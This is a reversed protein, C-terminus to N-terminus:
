AIATRRQEHLEEFQESAPLDKMSQSLKSSVNRGKRLLITEDSLTKIKARKEQSQESATGFNRQMVTM